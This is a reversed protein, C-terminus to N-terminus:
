KQAHDNEHWNHKKSMRADHLVGVRMVFNFLLRDLERVQVRAEVLRQLIALSWAILCDLVIVAHTGSIRWNFVDFLHHHALSLVIHVSQLDFQFGHSYFLLVMGELSDEDVGHDFGNLEHKSCDGVGRRVQTKPSEWKSVSLKGFDQLKLEKHRRSECSLTHKFCDYSYTKGEEWWRYVRIKHGRYQVAVMPMM